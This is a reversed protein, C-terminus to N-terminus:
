SLGSHYCQKLFDGVERTVSPWSEGEPPALSESSWDRACHAAIEREPTPEEESIVLWGPKDRVYEGIAGQKGKGVIAVRPIPLTLYEIAKSPLLDPNRNGIVLALDFDRSISM